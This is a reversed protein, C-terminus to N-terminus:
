NLHCPILGLRRRGLQLRLQHNQPAVHGCCRHERALAQGHRGAPDVPLVRPTIRPPAILASFGPAFGLMLRGPATVLLVLKEFSLTRVM